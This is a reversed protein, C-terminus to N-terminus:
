HRYQGEKIERATACEVCERFGWARRPEPMENGCEDCEEPGYEPHEPEFKVKNHKPKNTLEWHMLEREIAKDEDSM